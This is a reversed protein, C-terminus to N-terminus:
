LVMLGLHHTMPEFDRDQHLLAHGRRICFTAIIMDITKRITLGKNRLLRYNSAADVAISTDLMTEMRFERLKTEINRAHRDDVAGQLVELLILDGVVIQDLDDIENSKRVAESNERRLHAVWVSSDIVIM